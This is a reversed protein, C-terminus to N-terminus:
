TGGAGGQLSDEGLGGDMTMSTLAGANNATDGFNDAFASGTFTASKTLAGITAWTIGVKSLGAADVSTM